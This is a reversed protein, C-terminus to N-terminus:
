VEFPLDYLRVVNRVTMEYREEPSCESLITDLVKQSNPFISDGHPYDNGWMLTSTGSIDRTKIGIADDEFTIRFNQRWYESPKVPIKPYGRTGGRRKYAWDLRDLMHATWGTEFETIVFRLGSFRECVGSYILDAITCMAGAFALPYDAHPNPLGHQPTAGTFIHMTLPM